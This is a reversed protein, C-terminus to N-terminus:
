VPVALFDASERVAEGARCRQPQSGLCGPRGQAVWSTPHAPGTTSSPGTAPRSRRQRQHLLDRKGPLHQPNVRSLCGRHPSTWRGLPRGSRPHLLLRRARQRLHLQPHWGHLVTAAPLVHPGRWAKAPVSGMAPTLVRPRTPPSGSRHAANRRSPVPRHRPSSATPWRPERMPLWRTVPRMGTRQTRRSRGDWSPTWGPRYSRTSRPRPRRPSKWTRGCCRLM